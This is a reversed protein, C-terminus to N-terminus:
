DKMVECYNRANETYKRGETGETGIECVDTCRKAGAPRFVEFDAESYILYRCAERYDCGLYYINQLGVRSLM